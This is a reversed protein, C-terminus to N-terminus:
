ALVDLLRGSSSSPSQVASAGVTPTEAIKQASRAQDSQALQAEVANAKAQIEAIKQQGQPTKGSPCNCWDALQLQYRNLQSQLIGTNAPAVTSAVSLSSGIALSM